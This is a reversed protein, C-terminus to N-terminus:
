GRAREEAVIDALDGVTVVARLREEPLHVGLEDEVYGIVELMAVSDIGLGDVRTEMTLESLRKRDCQWVGEAFVPLIAPDRV